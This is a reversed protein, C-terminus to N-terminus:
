GRMAANRSALQNALFASDSAGISPSLSGIDGGGGGAVIGLNGMDSINKGESPHTFVGPLQGGMVGTSPPTQADWVIPGVMVM